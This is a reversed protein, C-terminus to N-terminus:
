GSMLFDKRLFRGTDGEIFDGNEGMSAFGAEEVQVLGVSKTAGGAEAVSMGRLAHRCRTVGNDRHGGVKVLELLAPRGGIQVLALHVDLVVLVAPANSGSRLAILVHIELCRITEETIL